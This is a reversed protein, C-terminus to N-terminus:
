KGPINLWGRSLYDSLTFAMMIGLWVFAGTAFAWTLRNSFKLHMFILMILVAKVSAVILTATLHFRGLPLYAVGVAAGLLMLLTVFTLLYTRIPLVHPELTAHPNRAHDNM